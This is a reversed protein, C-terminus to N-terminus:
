KRIKKAISWYLLDFVLFIIYFVSWLLLEKVDKWNLFGEEAIFWILLIILPMLYSLIKGKKGKRGQAISSSIIVALGIVTLYFIVIAGGFGRRWKDGYFINLAAIPIKHFFESPIGCFNKFERRAGLGGPRAKKVIELKEQPM